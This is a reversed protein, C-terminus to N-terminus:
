LGELEKGKAANSRTTTKVLSATGTLAVFKLIGLIDLFVLFVLFVV